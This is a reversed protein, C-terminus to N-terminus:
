VIKDVNVSKGAAVVQEFKYKCSRPICSKAHVHTPQYYVPCIWRHGTIAFRNFQRGGWEKVKCRQCVERSLM